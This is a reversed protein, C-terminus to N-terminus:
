QVRVAVAALRPHHICVAIDERFLWKMFHQWRSFTCGIACGRTTVDERAFPCNLCSANMTRLTHAVRARIEHVATRDTETM